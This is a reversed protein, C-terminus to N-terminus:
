CDEPDDITYRTEASIAVLRGYRDYTLTRYFGYLPPNAATHDYHIRCLIPLIVGAEGQAQDHISWTSTDATATGEPYTFPDARTGDIDIPPNFRGTVTRGAPGDAVAFQAPHFHLQARRIAATLDHIHAARIPDGPRPNPIAGPSLM